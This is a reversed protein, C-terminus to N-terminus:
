IGIRDLESEAREIAKRRAAPPQIAPAPEAPTASLADAFRQLAEASTVLRGGLRASDLKIGRVGQKAWRHLTAVHTKRGPRFSPVRGAAESFSLVTEQSLEIM